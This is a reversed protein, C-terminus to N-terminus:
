RQVSRVPGDPGFATRHCIIECWYSASCIRWLCSLVALCLISKYFLFLLLLTLSYFHFIDICFFKMFFHWCSIVLQSLLSRLRQIIGFHLKFYFYRYLDEELSSDSTISQQLIFTKYMYIPSSPPWGAHTVIHDLMQCLTFPKDPTKLFLFYFFM